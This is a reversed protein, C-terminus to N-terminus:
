GGHLPLRKRPGGASKVRMRSPAKKRGNVSARPRSTGAGSAPTKRAGSKRYAAAAEVPRAKRGSTAAGLADLTAAKRRGTGPARRPSVSREAFSKVAAVHKSKKAAHRSLGFAEGTDSDKLTITTGKAKARRARAQLSKEPM